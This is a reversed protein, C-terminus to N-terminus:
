RQLLEAQINGLTLIRFDTLRDGALEDIKFQNADNAVILVLTFIQMSQLYRILNKREEDWTLFVCICGSLLSIREVISPVIAEFSKDQCPRVSAIIELMRDTHSLGRGFTFCYSETGVFMLDLLSEQTQVEYAFSAAVAIAEEFVESYIESQFTDLILAHRVFFEDQEEKVIPKGTKAWSKWHISRLSDGARYDRLARFEESDGVSSSLAVGGSQYRRSGAIQMPPLQYLKPLISITQPLGLTKCAHFLGFPSPRAITLGALRILGRQTPLIEYVVEIQSNPQLRPLDIAKAIAGLNRAIAWQWRFYGVARDFANRKSENPEAIALFESFSPRPDAFEEWLKLATQSKPTQNHITIRYKLPMGVSAFRPLHRTASYRLRFVLSFGIEIVVLCLLFSFIQYAMGQTYDGFVGSLFLCLLIVRGTITIRKSLRKQIASSFHFVKYFWQKM